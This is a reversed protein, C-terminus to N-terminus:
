PGLPDLASGQGEKPAATELYLLLADAERIVSARFTADDPNFMHVFDRHVEDCIAQTVCGHFHAQHELIM